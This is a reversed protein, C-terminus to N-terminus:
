AVRISFTKLHRHRLHPARFGYLPKQVFVYPSIPRANRRSPERLVTADSFSSVSCSSNVIGDPKVWCNSKESPERFVCPLGRLSCKWTEMSFGKGQLTSRGTLFGPVKRISSMKVHVHMNVNTAAQMGSQSTMSGIVSGRHFRKSGFDLCSVRSYM